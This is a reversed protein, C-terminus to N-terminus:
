KKATKWHISKIKATLQEIYWIPTVQIQQGAWPGQQNIANSLLHFNPVVEQKVYWM